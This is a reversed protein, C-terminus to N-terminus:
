GRAPVYCGDEEDIVMRRGRRTNGESASMPAKRLEESNLPKRYQLRVSSLLKFFPSGLSSDALVCRGIKGGGFARM